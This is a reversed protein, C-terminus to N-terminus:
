FYYCDFITCLFTNATKIAQSAVMSATLPAPTTPVSPRPRDNGAHRKHRGNHQKYGNRPRPIGFLIPMNQYTDDSDYTSWRTRLATTNVLQSFTLQNTLQTINSLISTVENPLISLVITNAFTDSPGTWGLQGFTLNFFALNTEQNLLFTQVNSPITSWSLRTSNNIMQQTVNWSLQSSVQTQNLLLFRDIIPVLDWLFATTNSSSLVTAAIIKSVTFNVGNLIPNFPPPPPPPRFFNPGNGHTNTVAFM